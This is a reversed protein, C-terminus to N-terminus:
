LDVHIKEADIAKKIQPSVQHLKDMIRECSGELPAAYSQELYAKHAEFDKDYYDCAYRLADEDTRARFMIIEHFARRSADLLEEPNEPKRFATGDFVRVDKPSKTPAYFVYNIPPDLKMYNAMLAEAQYKHLFAHNILNNQVESQAKDLAEVDINRPDWARINYTPANVTTNNNNNITSVAGNFVNQSNIATTSTANPAPAAVLHQRMMKMEEKLELLTDFIISKSCEKVHRNLSKQYSYSTGCQHCVFQKTISKDLKELLIKQGMLSKEPPCPTARKLHRRLHSPYQFRMGCRGCEM